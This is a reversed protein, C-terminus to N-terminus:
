TINILLLSTIQGSNKQSRTADWASNWYRLADRYYGTEFRESAIASQLAPTWRSHPHLKVFQDLASVDESIKRAKFASLAQALEKNESISSKSDTPVLPEFVVRANSIEFDSPKSSFVLQRVQPKTLEASTPRKPASTPQSKAVRSQEKLVHLSTSIGPSNASVPLIRACMLCILLWAFLNRWSKKDLAKSSKM